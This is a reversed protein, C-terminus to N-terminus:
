LLAKFRLLRDAFQVLQQRALCTIYEDISMPPSRLRARLRKIATCVKAQALDFQYVLFDDPHQAEIGFPELANEPFDRTNFTVLAGAKAIIAAALVHQDNSDPLSLGQVLHEYGSILADPVAADMLRRTRRLAQPTARANQKLVAAIWEEHIRDTWRPRFIGEAAIELIVDRLPASYLVCADLVVTFTDM